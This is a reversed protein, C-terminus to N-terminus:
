GRIAAVFVVRRAAYERTDGIRVVENSRDSPGDRRGASSDRLAAAGGVFRRRCEVLRLRLQATSCARGCQPTTGKVVLGASLRCRRIMGDSLSPTKRPAVGSRKTRASM